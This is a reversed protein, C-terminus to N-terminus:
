IRAEPNAGADKATRDDVGQGVTITAFFQPGLDERSPEYPINQGPEPKPRTDSM